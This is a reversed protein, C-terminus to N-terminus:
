KFVPSSKSLTEGGYTVLINIQKGYVYKRIVPDQSKTM